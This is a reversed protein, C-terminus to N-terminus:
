QLRVVLLLMPLFDEINGENAQCKTFCVTPKTYEFKDSFLKYILSTTAFHIKEYSYKTAYYIVSSQKTKQKKPQYNKINLEKEQLEWTDYCLFIM